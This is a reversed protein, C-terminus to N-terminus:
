KKNIETNFYYFVKQFDEYTKFVRSYQNYLKKQIYDNENFVFIYDFNSRLAPDTTHTYEKGDETKVTISFTNSQM